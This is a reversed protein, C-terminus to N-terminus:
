ATNGEQTIGRARRCRPRTPPQEAEAKVTRRKERVSSRRWESQNQGADSKLPWYTKRTVGLEDKMQLM